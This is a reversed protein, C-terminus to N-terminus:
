FVAVREFIIEQFEPFASVFYSCHLKYLELSDNCLKLIFLASSFLYSFKFFNKVRYNKGDSETIILENHKQFFSMPRLIGM